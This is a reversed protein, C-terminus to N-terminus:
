YAAIHAMIRNISIGGGGGTASLVNGTMTLGSGLSIERVDQAGFASGSGLLKSGGSVPQMKGYTVKDPRIALNGSGANQIDGASLYPQGVTQNFPM